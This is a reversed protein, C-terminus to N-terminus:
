AINSSENEVIAQKHPVFAPVNVLCNVGLYVLPHEWSEVARPGLQLQYDPRKPSNADSWVEAICIELVMNQLRQSVTRCHWIGKIGGAVCVNDGTLKDARLIRQATFLEVAHVPSQPISKHTEHFRSILAASTRPM